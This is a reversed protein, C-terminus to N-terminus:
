PGCCYSCARRHQLPSRASLLGPCSRMVHFCEGYSTYYVQICALGQSPRGRRCMQGTEVTQMAVYVFTAGRWGRRCGAWCRILAAVMSKFFNTAASMAAVLSM